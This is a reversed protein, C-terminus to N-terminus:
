QASTPFFESLMRSLEGYDLPKLLLANFGAEHIRQRDNPEM